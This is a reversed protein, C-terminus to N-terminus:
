SNFAVRDIGVKRLEKRILNKNRIKQKQPEANRNIYNILVLNNECSFDITQTENYKGMLGVDIGNIRDIVQHENESDFGSALDAIKCALEDTIKDLINMINPNFSSAVEFRKIKKEKSLDM